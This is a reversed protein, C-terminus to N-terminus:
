RSQGRGHPAGLHPFAALYDGHPGVGDASVSGRTMLSVALDALDDSLRRGNPFEAPRRHDYHLVDPLLGDVAVRADDAPYGLGELIAAYRRGFRARDDAPEAERYPKVEDPAGYTLFNMLNAGGTRDVQAAHGNTRLITRGWVAIPGPGLDENPLELAIAFVDKDSFSDTGTFRYGNFLGEADAFFPDSRPGAFFRYRASEVIEVSTWTSAPVADFIVEGSGGASRADIGAARRVTASQRGQDPRSFVVSFALDAVLDGDTDVDIRYAAAPDFVPGLAFPNVALILVTRTPDAPAQFVYLGTIDLAAMSADPAQFDLLDFHDSM